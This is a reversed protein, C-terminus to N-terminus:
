GPPEHSAGQDLMALAARQAEAEAQEQTSFVTELAVRQPPVISNRHMPNTSPGYIAVHAAWGEVDAMWVGSYDIEYEGQQQTPVAGERVLHLVGM